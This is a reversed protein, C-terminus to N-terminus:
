EEDGQDNVTELFCSRCYSFGAYMHDYSIVYLRCGEKGCGGCCRIFAMDNELAHKLTLHTRAM